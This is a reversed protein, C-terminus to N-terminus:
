VGSGELDDTCICCIVDLPAQPDFAQQCRQCNRLPPPGLDWLGVPQPNAQHSEWTLALSDGDILARGQNSLGGKGAPKEKPPPREEQPIM